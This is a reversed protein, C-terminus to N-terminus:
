PPSTGSTEAGSNALEREVHDLWESLTELSREGFENILRLYRTRHPITEAREVLADLAARAEAIGNRLGALSALITADDSFDAALLKVLAEHQVRPMAAPEALWATLAARGSDTLTYYRRERTRGPETRASVYGLKERRKPEAYYHSESTTWFMPGERMMQVIDHAGAGGRGVLALIVYSFPTLKSRSSM